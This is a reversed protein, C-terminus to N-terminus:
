SWPLTLNPLGLNSWIYTMSLIERFGHSWIMNLALSLYFYPDTRDDENFSQPFLTPPTVDVRWAILIKREVIIDAGREKVHAGRNFFNNLQTTHWRSAEEAM